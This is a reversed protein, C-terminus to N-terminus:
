ESAGVLLDRWFVDPSRLPLVPESVALFRKVARAISVASLPDFTQVPSCVDRVYDLESALIPLGAHTAEILPLGFSEATSPFIMAGATAYLSLVKEHPMQGLDQIRLGAQDTLAAVERKLVEDRPSLTLALSPHLGDRALLQWAVLLVRHNKHAEGDAVYVFDWDTTRVKHEASTPLAEVFPLVRVAPQGSGHAGWWQVVARQMSPTQVIYEAVRHRFIQSVFREFALRVRTKLRYGSPLTRALYLRNQLFVVIKAQNSLLPPLGHFCLIVDGPKAVSSLYFEARLRAGARADVWTVQAGQPLMVRGRARADLLATLQWDSPWAAVLAQLLVFGGGTHISPAHLVVSRHRSM